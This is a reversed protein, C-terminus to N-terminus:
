ERITIGKAKLIPTMIRRLNGSFILQKERGSITAGQVKALQSAFSRGPVDSGYIVREAGLERVAMEVFGRTPFSGAVEAYVNPVARIARIGPEWDGGSHLCIVPAEPRRAALVAVDQPKSEHREDVGGPIPPNGGVKLWAHVCILAKLEAAREFVPDYVPLSCVGDEGALKMGVMPGNAIWRDLIAINSKVTDNWLSLWLMGFVRDRHRELAQLIEKDDKAKELRLFLCLREIGLRDAVRIFNEVKESLTRGAAGPEDPHCHADWIRM